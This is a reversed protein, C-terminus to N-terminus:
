TYSDITSYKVNMAALGNTADLPQVEIRWVGTPLVFSRRRTTSAIQDIRFAIVPITDPNTGAADTVSAMARVEVGNTTTAPFQVEVQVRASIKTRLDLVGNQQATTAGATMLTQNNTVNPSAM